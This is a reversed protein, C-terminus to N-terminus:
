DDEDEDDNSFDRHGDLFCNPIWKNIAEALIEYENEEIFSRTEEDAYDSIKLESSTEEWKGNSWELEYDVNFDHFSIEGRAYSSTEERIRDCDSFQEEVWDEINVKEM